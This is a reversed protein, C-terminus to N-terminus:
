ALTDEVSHQKAELSSLQIRLFMKVSQIYSQVKLKSAKSM